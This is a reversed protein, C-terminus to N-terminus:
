AMRNAVWAGGAGRTPRHSWHTAPRTSPRCRRTPRRWRRRRLSGSPKRSRLARSVSSRMRMSGGSSRRAGPGVILRLPNWALTAATLASAALVFVIWAGVAGFALVMYFAAVSGWMGSLPGIERHAGTALAAGVPFLVVLGILFVLWSRDAAAQMRGFLRLAHVAPVVAALFAAPVGLTFTLASRLCSGVPGFFSGASACGAAAGRTGSILAGCLFVAFLLLASGALERKIQPSLTSDSDM